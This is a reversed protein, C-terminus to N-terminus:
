AVATEVGKGVGLFKQQVADVDIVPLGKIAAGREVGAALQLM